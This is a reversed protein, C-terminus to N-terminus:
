EKGRFFSVLPSEVDVAEEDELWSRELLGTDIRERDRADEIPDHVDNM